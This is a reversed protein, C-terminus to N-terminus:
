VRAGVDQQRGTSDYLCQLMPVGHDNTEFPSMIGRTAADFGQRITKM